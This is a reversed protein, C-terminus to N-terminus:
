LKIRWTKYQWPSYVVRELRLNMYIIVYYGSSKLPGFSLWACVLIRRSRAAVERVATDQTYALCVKAPLQDFQSGFPGGESYVSQNTFTGDRQISTLIVETGQIPNCLCQCNEETFKEQHPLIM